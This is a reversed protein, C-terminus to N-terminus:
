ALMVNKVCRGCKPCNRNNLVSDKFLIAECAPCKVYSNGWWIWSVGGKSDDTNESLKLPILVFLALLSVFCALIGIISDM